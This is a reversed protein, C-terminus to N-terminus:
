CNGSQLICVGGAGNGCLSYGSVGCASAPGTSAQLCRATGCVRDNPCCGGGVSQPCSQFDSPCVAVGRKQGQIEEHIVDWRSSGLKRKVLSPGDTIKPYSSTIVYTRTPASDTRWTPTPPSTSANESERNGQSGQGSPVGLAVGFVGLPRRTAHTSSCSLCVDFVPM